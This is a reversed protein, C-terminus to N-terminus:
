GAPSLVDADLRAARGELQPVQDYNGKLGAMTAAHLERYTAQPQDRMAKVLFYTLAGNYVGDIIADASTQTDRCGSILTEIIDVDHVDVPARRRLSRSLRGTHEGGSAEDDPNPLFRDIIPADPPIPERTNTGSHCCDMVVTLSAAPDLRDFTTRLWDDTLPDNFDLDHPCLIEDRGDSEDGNTDPVNSGHGSYHLYLVDGAAATTVLSTIAAEMAAKTAQEDTLMTIDADTFGYCDKLAAAINNVDNVCGRLDANPINPIAYHNIGILLARKAM